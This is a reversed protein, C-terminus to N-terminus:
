TLQRMHSLTGTAGTLVRHFDAIVAGTEMMQQYFNQETVWVQGGQVAAFDALLENRALLDDLSAVTDDITANYVIVDADKAQAYFREMQMTTSSGGPTAAELDDFVYTGGAQEIMRSVYDGPRRVVAAGNSNLYFFAVTKGTPALDLAEVQDVQEQFAAAARVECDCLAGYLLVWEARGLPEQEYSSLETFVPIGLEILKERVEPTHNIMSSEIALRVGQSVLLEYDPSRYKGGYVISGDDMAQRAEPIQWDDRAIGSVSIRDLADLACFLCMTDSAVLYIDGIPQQLVVVDDALSAPVAADEPVVLYRSGDATCVLQYGGEYRDLTFCRAYRLELSEIPEWGTGIDPNRFDAILTTTSEQAPTDTGQTATSTVAAGQRTAQCTSTLLLTLCALLLACVVRMPKASRIPRMNDPTREKHRM